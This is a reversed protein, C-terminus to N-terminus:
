GLWETYAIFPKVRGSPVPRFRKVPHMRDRAGDLLENLVYNSSAVLCTALLALLLPPMSAPTLLDPQYFFALVVGLVMFANKFWHDIRAIQVYPWVRGLLGRPAEPVRSVDIRNVSTTVM